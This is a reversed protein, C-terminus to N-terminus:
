KLPPNEENKYMEVLKDFKSIYRRLKAKEFGRVYWCMRSGNIIYGDMENAHDYEVKYCGIGQVQPLKSSLWAYQNFYFYNKPLSIKKINTLKSLAVLDESKDKKKKIFLELEELNPMTTFLNFDYITLGDADPMGHTYRKITLKKISANELGKQNLVRSCGRIFVDELKHNFRMNWLKVNRDHYHIDVEKLKKCLKLVKFDFSKNDEKYISVYKLSVLNKSLAKILKDFDEQPLENIELRKYDNSELIKEIIQEISSYEEVKLGYGGMFVPMDFASIAHVIVKKGNLFRIGQKYKM